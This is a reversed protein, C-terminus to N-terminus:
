ADCRLRAQWPLLLFAALALTQPGQRVKYALWGLLSLIVLGPGQRRPHYTTPPTPPTAAATAIDSVTGGSRGERDGERWRCEWERRRVQFLVGSLLGGPLGKKFIGLAATPYCLPAQNLM